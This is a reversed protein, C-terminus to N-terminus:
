LRNAFLMSTHQALTGGFSHIFGVEADNVQRDGENGRLQKVMEVVNFMQGPNGPHSYSHNGGHTNIPYKGGFAIQGSAVFPGGEGKACFGCGELVMPVAGTFVDPLGIVDVDTRTLGARAFATNSTYQFMSRPYEVLDPFSPTYYTGFLGAESLIYVPKHNLDRAREASTLVLACGGDTVISCDLLHFPDSILRSNIVDEVTIPKKMFAGPTRVANDRLTVAVQAFQESTWGYEHMHRRAILAFNSAPINGYPEVFELNHISMMAQLAGSREAATLLNDAGVLLLNECYGAAIAAVAHRVYAVASGGMSSFENYHRLPLGLRYAVELHHRQHPTVFSGCTVLGDIDDKTLGADEIAKAGAEVYLEWSTKDPLRGQETEGIGVIAVKGRLDYSSMETYLGEKVLNRFPGAYRTSGVKAGRM